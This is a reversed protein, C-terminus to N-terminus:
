MSCVTSPSEVSSEDSVQECAHKITTELVALYCPKTIVAFAGESKAQCLPYDYGSLIIIQMDSQIRKLRRMLEIGDMDPLSLDLLAIQFECREVEALAQRSNSASAVRFGRRSLLTTMARLQECEDDVILISCTM